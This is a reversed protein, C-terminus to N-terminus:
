LCLIPGLWRGDVGAGLGCHVSVLTVILRHLDVRLALLLSLVCLKVNTTFVKYHHVNRPFPISVLKVLASLKSEGALLLILVM